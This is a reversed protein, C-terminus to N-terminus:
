KSDEVQYPFFDDGLVTGVEVSVKGLAMGSSEIGFVKRKSITMNDFAVSLTTGDLAVAVVDGEQYVNTLNAIVTRDEQGPLEFVYARLNKSGLVDSASKVKMAIVM